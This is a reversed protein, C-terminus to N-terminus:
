PTYSDSQEGLSSLARGQLAVQLRHFLVLRMPRGILIAVQAVSLLYLRVM